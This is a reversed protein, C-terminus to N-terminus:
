RCHYHLKNLIDNFDLPKGVHSNMGVKLCKDIDDKFVNATMAIIPITKARLINLYRIQMTAEYGDMEPMQVDMLIADYKDPNEMFKQVAEVGNIAQDIKIETPELLSIVIERNIEIDEAMLIHKGRFLGNIDDTNCNITSQASIKGKKKEAQKLLVTFYFTSGKNPESNIWIKGGMMEVIVKSIALGLGTGGFKRVTSAEAQQFSQFLRSQQEPSIGIGTDIISLQIICMGDKEGVFIANLDISGSEPTFKVANVLLNTVVQALRQEDGVLIEPISDDINMSFKQKKEDVRFNIIGVVQQIMNIFNFEVFSLEFKNAEIKSMDLVDNIVGLLHKSADGIKNFCYNKKDIDAATQGITTMGFIANIPTRIEHSMNALFVSKARNASQAGNLAAELEVQSNRLELTREKVLKELRKGELQNKKFLFLLLILILASMVSMGIFWPIKAQTLKARYDYTKRMWKGSIGDIDIIQLTKDIISALIERDLHFGFSSGVPYNFIVNAKYGVREQFNTFMLLRSLNSMIMDIENNELAAIAFNSNDYERTNMHGPFWNHFMDASSSGKLLAVRMHPIENFSIDRYESKSLLAFRDNIFATQPWLFRGEREQSQLLETIMYVEGDELMKLLVLWETNHENVPNFKLGTYATIEALVDFAIGQWEKKYKDYFSIPYNDYEAALKVIPNYQIYAKEQPSLRLFLKHRMYDQYGTKYLYKLYSDAEGNLAKQIVTIIPELEIKPTALSVPECIVPFFYQVQVDTYTDFAAETDEGFFADIEGNKLMQYAKDFNTVPYIEYPYFLHRTVSNITVTGDLFAFRLPRIASIEQLHMSDDLRICKVTREAIPTTMLYSHRREDAATLEGTFDIEGSALGAVLDDWAYIAPKFPIGFLDSLWDCMLGSFGGVDGVETSFAETSMIMGYVFARSHEEMKVRLAEITHIEDESVGPIDRYAVYPSLTKNVTGGPVADGGDCGSLMILLLILIFTM